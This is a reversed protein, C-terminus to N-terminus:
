LVANRRALGLTEILRHTRCRSFLASLPDTIESAMTSPTIFSMTISSAISQGDAGMERAAHGAPIQPQGTVLPVSIPTLTAHIAREIDQHRSV